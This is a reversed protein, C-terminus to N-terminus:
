PASRLVEALDGWVRVIFTRKTGATQTLVLAGALPQMPARGLHIRVVESWRIVLPVHKGRQATFTIGQQDFIMNGSSVARRGPLVTSARCAFFVGKPLDRLREQQRKRQSRLILPVETGVILATVVVAEVAGIVGSSHHNVALVLAM